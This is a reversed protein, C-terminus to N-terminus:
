SIDLVEDDNEQQQRVSKRNWRRRRPKRHHHIRISSNRKQWSPFCSGSDPEGCRSAISASQDHQSVNRLEVKEPQAQLNALQRHRPSHPRREAEAFLVIEYKSNQLPWRVASKAWFSASHHHCEQIAITQKQHVLLDQQEM